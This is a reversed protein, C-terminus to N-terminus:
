LMDHEDTAQRAKEKIVRTLFDAYSKHVLHVLDKLKHSLCDEKVALGACARQIM